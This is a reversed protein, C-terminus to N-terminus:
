KPETATEPLVAKVQSGPRDVLLFGGGYAKRLPEEQLVQAPTGSAIVTGEALLVMDDAYLGALNLDHTVVGVTRGREALHHFTDFVGCSGSIDLSATPEDLLIVEPEGALVSATLVRQREGGSLEQFLRDALHETRTQELALEVAERDGQTEFAFGTGHAYRGLHVLERVTYSISPRVTQPLYGIRRARERRSLESLLTGKFRVEGQLPPQIGALAALLTSKGAGNPGAIAFMRGPTLSLSVSRIVAEAKPYGLTLNRASLVASEGIM